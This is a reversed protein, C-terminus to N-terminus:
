DPCSSRADNHPTCRTGEAYAATTAILYDAAAAVGNESADPQVAIFGNAGAITTGFEAPPLVIRLFVISGGSAHAIRAAVPIAREAGDSGDLPVLIRQFM